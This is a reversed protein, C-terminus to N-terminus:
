AAEETAADAPADGLIERTCDAMTKSARSIPDTMYYNAFAAEFGAKKIRYSKSQKTLKKYKAPTIEGLEALHPAAAFLKARLEELSDFPLPEGIKESLARLIKWDERAEGPPFMARMAQQPRGETNVYIADKETYAAAPLIVDARHAGADGHHGQYIVFADGLAQMDLEDAGLLYIIDLEKVEIAAFMGATDLGEKAPVFGVDLGGVRAAAHHLMNLGNWGNRIVNCNEAIARVANHISAGDERTLAGAGLIVVPRAAKTLLEAVEHSGDMIKNLLSPDNGLETVPYTLHNAEGINFIQAGGKLYAKRLRTNVLPAELKPNTGILLVMDAAELDALPTNMIYNARANVDMKAGDQRCDLNASGLQEMLMKLAFMSETDALNGAIAGMRAGDSKKVRKAIADFAEDWSAAQLKGNKRVFPRDLRQNLLGDCAFRGKDSLWEENVAENLRPMVRLVAEGRTDIRINSGVADMVDISETKKLEWPRANFAYPKSTLAGVPCLDIVNGSLESAAAQELYTTIQMDEGRFIAGIEPVGAIDEAFRVCRTCHICRTMHTKILPGMHKDEVARKHEDYRSDGSGYHLAQDQLDCEGGQDCIPCDLPHNILLMEMVGERAKKVMPTTTFIEQGDAAPMACSAAPKPPGPKVEVLCMRCNGAIELKEHYCFRPVEIGHMDCVQIISMGAEFEYDKGDIKLSPM